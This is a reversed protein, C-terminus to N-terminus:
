KPLARNRLSFEQCADRRHFCKTANPRHPWGGKESALAYVALCDPNPCQAYQVPHEQAVEPTLLDLACVKCRGILPQPIKRRKGARGPDIKEDTAQSPKRLKHIRGCHNCIVVPTKLSLWSQKPERLALVAYYIDSVVKSYQDELLRKLVSMDVRLQRGNRDTINEAPTASTKKAGRRKDTEKLTYLDSDKALKLGDKVIPLITNELKEYARSKSGLTQKFANVEATKRTREVARIILAIAKASSQWDCKVCALYNQEAVTLTGLLHRIKFPAFRQDCPLLLDPDNREAVGTEVRVDQATDSRIDRVFWILEPFVDTLHYGISPKGLMLAENIKRKAVEIALRHWTTGSMSTLICHWSAECKPDELCEFLCKVEKFSHHALWKCITFEIEDWVDEYTDDELCAILSAVSNVGLQSASNCIAGAISGWVFHHAHDRLCKVLREANHSDHSLGEREISRSLATWRWIHQRDELFAILRDIDTSDLTHSAMNIASAIESWAKRYTKDEMCDILHKVVNNGVYKSARGITDGIYHWVGFYTDNMFYGTLRKIDDLSLYKAARGIARAFCDWLEESDESELGEFFFRLMDPKVHSAAEFIALAVFDRPEGYREIKLHNFLWEIAGNGLRAATRGIASAVPERTWRSVYMVNNCYALLQQMEDFGMLTAAKSVVHVIESWVERYKDQALFNLLRTMEDRGLLPAAEGITSVIQSWAEEHEKDELCDLLRKVADTNMHPIARRLGFAIHCWVRRYKDNQMQDLFRIQEPLGQHATAEGIAWSINGWAAAYKDNLLYRSLIKVADSDVHEAVEGITWAIKAWGLKYAKNQLCSFLWEIVRRPWRNAVRAITDTSTNPDAWRQQYGRRLQAFALDVLSDKVKQANPSVSEAPLLVRLAFGYLSLPRTECKPQGGSSSYDLNSASDYNRSFQLVWRVIDAALESQSGNGHWLIDFAYLWIEDHDTWWFKRQFAQVLQKQCTSTGDNNPHQDALWAYYCGILYEVMPIKPAYTGEPCRLLLGTTEAYRAYFAYTNEQDCFAHPHQVAQNEAFRTPVGFGDDAHIALVAGLRHRNAMLTRLLSDEAETDKIHRAVRRDLVNELAADMLESITTPLQESLDPRVAWALAKSCWAALFLPRRFVENICPQSKRYRVLVPHDDSEHHLRLRARIFGEADDPTLDALTHLTARVAYAGSEVGHGARSCLVHWRNLHVNNLIATMASSAATIPLEDLGDFLPLLRRGKALEILEDAFLRDQSRVFSNIDHQAQESLYKWFDQKGDWKRLRVPFPVWFRGVRPEPSDCWSLLRRALILAFHALTVSKGCGFPGVLVLPKADDDPQKLWQDLLIVDLTPQNSLPNANSVSSFQEADTNRKTRGAEPALYPGVTLPRRFAAVLPIGADAIAALNSELLEILNVAYQRFKNVWPESDFEGGNVPAM